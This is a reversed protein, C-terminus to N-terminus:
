FRLQAVRQSGMSQLVGPEEAWPIKGPLFVPHFPNDNGEGSSWIYIYTYIYVYNYLYNLLWIYANFTPLYFHGAPSFMLGWVAWFCTKWTLPLQNFSSLQQKKLNSLLYCSYELLLWLLETATVQPPSPLFVGTLEWPKKKGGAELSCAWKGKALLRGCSALMGEKWCGNGRRGSGWEPVMIRSIFPHEGKTEHENWKIM